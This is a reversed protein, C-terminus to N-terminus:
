IDDFLHQVQASKMIVDYSPFKKIIRSFFKFFLNMYEYNYHM